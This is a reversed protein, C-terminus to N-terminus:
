LLDGTESFRFIRAAFSLANRETVHFKVQTHVAHPQPYRNLHSRNIGPSIKEIEDFCVHCHWGPESSHYEHQCLVVMDSNIEVGLTIRCIQKFENLLILVRCKHHISDFAVVRWKYEPGFKYNKNRARSLPFAARSIHGSKWEGIRPKGKVGRIIDSVDV